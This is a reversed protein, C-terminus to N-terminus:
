SMFYAHHKGEDSATPPNLSALKLKSVPILITNFSLIVDVMNQNASTSLWERSFEYSFFEQFQMAIKKASSSLKALM